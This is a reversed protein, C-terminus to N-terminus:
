KSKETEDHKKALYRVAKDEESNKMFLGIVWLLVLIIPVGVLFIWILNVFLTMRNKERM